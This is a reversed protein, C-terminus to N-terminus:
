ATITKYSYVKKVLRLNKSKCEPCSFVFDMGQMFYDGRTSGFEAGCNDCLIFEDSRKQYDKDGIDVLDKRRVM